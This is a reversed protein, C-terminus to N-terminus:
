LPSGSTPLIVGKEESYQNWIKIMEERLEPLQDSLDNLEAPDKSLDYLQWDNTGFPEPLWLLKFDGKRVARTGFLEWSVAIDNDYVVDAEGRLMQMMSRGLLPHIERGKYSTGPHQVGAFDLLTAAIDMVHTFADSSSGPNKIGPGSIILPSRIGGESLFGKFLRYPTM